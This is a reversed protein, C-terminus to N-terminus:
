KHGIFFLKKLGRTVLKVASFIVYYFCFVEFASSNIYSQTFQAFRKGFDVFFVLFKNLVLFKM